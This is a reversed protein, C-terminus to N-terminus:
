STRGPARVKDLDAGLNYLVQAAVGEGERILGLLMHETGIYTHGLSRRMSPRTLHPRRDAKRRASIREVESWKIRKGLSLLARAAYIHETGVVTHGLRRAEEQSLVMVRQARETFRGFM